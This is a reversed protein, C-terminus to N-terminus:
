CFSLGLHPSSSDWWHRLQANRVGQHISTVTPDTYYAGKYRTARRPIDRVFLRSSPDLSDAFDARTLTMSSSTASANDDSDSTDTPTDRM